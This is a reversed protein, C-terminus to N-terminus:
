TAVEAIESADVVVPEAQPKQEAKIPKGAIFAPYGNGWLKLIQWEKLKM